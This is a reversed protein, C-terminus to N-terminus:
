FTVSEVKVDAKEEAVEELVKRHRVPGKKRPLAVAGEGDMESHPSETVAPLPAKKGITALIHKGVLRTDVIEESASRETSATSEDGEDADDGDEDGEEEEDPDYVGEEDIEEEDDVDDEEFEELDATSQLVGVLDDVTGTVFDIVKEKQHRLFNLMPNFHYTAYIMHASRMVNHEVVRALFSQADQAVLPVPKFAYESSGDSSGVFVPRNSLVGIMNHASGLTYIYHDPFLKESMVHTLAIVQVKATVTMLSKIYKDYYAEVKAWETEKAIMQAPPSLYLLVDGDISTYNSTYNKCTHIAQSQKAVVFRYTKRLEPIVDQWLGMQMELIAIDSSTETHIYLTSGEKLQSLAGLIITLQKQFRLQAKTPNGCAGVSSSFGSLGKEDAQRQVRCIQLFEAAKHFSVIKPHTFSMPLSKAFVPFFEKNIIVGAKQSFSIVENMAHVDVFSKAFKEKVSRIVMNPSGNFQKKFLGKERKEAWEFCPNLPGRMMAFQLGLYTEKTLESLVVLLSSAFDRGNGTYRTGTFFPGLIGIVVTAFESMHAGSFGDFKVLSDFRASDTNEELGNATRKVALLIMAALREIGPYGSLMGEPTIWIKPELITQSKPLVLGKPSYYCPEKSLLSGHVDLPTTLASSRRDALVKNCITRESSHLIGKIGYKERFNRVAESLEILGSSVNLQKIQADSLPTLASEAFRATALANKFV